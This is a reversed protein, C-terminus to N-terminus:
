ILDEILKKKKKAVDSVTDKLGWGLAIGVGLGVAVAVSSVVLTFATKLIETDAGPLLFPLAIVLATYGVFIKILLAITNAFRAGKMKEKVYDAAFLAAVLVILGRVLSPMYGAFWIIADTVLGLQVRAAAAGLFLAVIYIKIISHVMGTFKIGFLADHLGKAKLKEEFKFAHFASALLRNIVWAVFWGLVLYLVIILAAWLGDIFQVAMGAFTKALEDNLNQVFSPDLELM